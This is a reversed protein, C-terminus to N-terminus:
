LACREATVCKGTSPWLIRDHNCELVLLQASNVKGNILTTLGVFSLLRGFVLGFKNGFNTPAICRSTFFKPNSCTHLLRAHVLPPVGCFDLGQGLSVSLTLKSRNKTSQHFTHLWLCGNLMACFAFSIVLSFIKLAKYIKFAGKVGPTCVLMWETRLRDPVHLKM